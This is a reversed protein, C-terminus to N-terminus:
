SDTSCAFYIREAQRIGWFTQMKPNVLLVVNLLIWIIGANGLSTIFCMVRDLIPAHIKQLLDLIQFEIQM